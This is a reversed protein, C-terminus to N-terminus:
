TLVPSNIQMDAESHVPTPHHPVEKDAPQRYTARQDKVISTRESVRSKKPMQAVVEPYRYESGTGLIDVLERYTTDDEYIGLYSIDLRGLLFHIFRFFTVSQCCEPM